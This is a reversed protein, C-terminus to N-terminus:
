DLPEPMSQTLTRHTRSAAFGAVSIALGGIILRLTVEENLFLWGALAATLVQIPGIQSFLTASIHRLSMLVLTHCFATVFIGLFIIKTLTWGDWELPNSRLIAVPLLAIAVILLNWVMLSGSDYGRMRHHILVIRSSWFVASLIGVLVPLLLNEPAGTLPTLLSVGILTLAALSLDVKRPRRRQAAAEILTSFVPYTYLSIMALAVTGLKISIFLAIWHAGTLLGISLLAIRHGPHIVLSAKRLYVILLILPAAILCRYFVLSTSDVPIAQVVTIGIGM